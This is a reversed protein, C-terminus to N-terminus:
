GNKYQVMGVELTGYDTGLSYRKQVQGADRIPAEAGCGSLAGGVIKKKPTKPYQNELPVSSAPNTPLSWQGSVM